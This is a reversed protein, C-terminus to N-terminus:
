LPTTETLGGEQPSSEETEPIVQLREDTTEDIPRQSVQSSHVLKQTTGGVSPTDAPSHQSYAESITDTKQSFLSQDSAQESQVLACVPFNRAVEGDM